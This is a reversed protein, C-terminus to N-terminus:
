AQQGQSRVIFLGVVNIDKRAGLLKMKMAKFHRGVTLMDDFVVINQRAKNLMNIDVSYNDFLETYSSRETSLHSAPLTINQIIPECYDIQANMKKASELIKILRDDYLPDGKCRSPPVPVFTANEYPYDHVIMQAVTEIATLKYHYEPLEKKDEGKKLNAILQNAPGKTYTPMTDGEARPRYTGWYLCEDDETLEVHRPRTMEDIRCLKFEEM